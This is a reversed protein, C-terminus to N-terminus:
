WGLRQELTAAVVNGVVEGGEATLHNNELFLASVPRGTQLLAATVPAVTAGAPLRSAPALSHIPTGSFPYDLFIVPIHEAEALALITAHNGPGTGDSGVPQEITISGRPGVNQGQAAATGLSLLRYLRSEFLGRRVWTWQNGYDRPLAQSDGVMCDILLFDPHKPLVYSEILRLVQASRYGSSGLNVVTVDHGHARLTAQTVSPWAANEAVGAGHTQSDGFAYGRLEGPRRVEGRTDMVGPKFNGGEIRSVASEPRWGLEPDFVVHNGAIWERVDPPLLLHVGVLIAVRALGELALLGLPVAM